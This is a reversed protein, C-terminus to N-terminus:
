QNRAHWLDPRESAVARMAVEYTEKTKGMRDKVAASFAEGGVKVDSRPETGNTPAAGRGLGKAMTMTVSDRTPLIVPMAEVFAKTTDYNSMAMEVIPKRRKEEDAIRGSSVAFAALSEARDQVTQKARAQEAAELKAVQSKLSAYETPEIRTASLALRVERLGASPGVGAIKRMEALEEDQKKKEEEADSMKTTAEESAKKAADADDAFKAMAADKEEDTCDEALGFRAYLAKKDMSRTEKSRATPAQGISLRSLRVPNMGDLFPIVTWSVTLLEYGVSEGQENTGDTWFTPSIFGYGKNELLDRGFPTLESRHAWLGDALREGGFDPEAGTQSHHAVVKGGEILALADYKAALPAPQGNESAYIAQHEVDGPLPNKQQAFNGIIQSLTERNFEAPAEGKVFEGFKAVQDWRCADSASAAFSFARIVSGARVKPKIPM